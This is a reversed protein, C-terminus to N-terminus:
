AIPQDSLCVPTAHATRHDRSIPPLSLRARPPSTSSKLLAGHKDAMDPQLQAHSHSIYTLMAM